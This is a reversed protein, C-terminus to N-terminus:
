LTGNMVPTTRLTALEADPDHEVVQSVRYHDKKVLKRARGIAEEETSAFVDIAVSDTLAGTETKMAYGQVFYHTHRM